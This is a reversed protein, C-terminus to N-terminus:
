SEANPWEFGRRLESDLFNIYIHFNLWLLFQQTPPTFLKGKDDVRWYRDFSKIVM